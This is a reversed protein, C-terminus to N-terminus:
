IHLDIVVLKLPCVHISLNGNLCSSYWFIQNISLDKGNPNIVPIKDESQAAIIYWPVCLACVTALFSLVAFAFAWCAKSCCRCM